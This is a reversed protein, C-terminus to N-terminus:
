GRRTKKGRSCFEVEVGVKRKTSEVRDRARERRSRLGAITKECQAYARVDRTRVSLFLDELLRFLLL